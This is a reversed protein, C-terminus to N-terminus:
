SALRAPFGLRSQVLAATHPLQYDPTQTVVVLLGVDAPSAGTQKLLAAVATTAVDSTAEDGSATYRTAIGLKDRVFAPEFGCRSAYELNDIRQSGFTHAIAQIGLTM